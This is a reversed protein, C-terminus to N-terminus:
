FVMFFIVFIQHKLYNRVLDTLESGLRKALTKFHDSSKNFLDESWTEEITMKLLFFSGNDPVAELTEGSKFVETSPEDNINELSYNEPASTESDGTSSEVEELNKLTSCKCVQLSFAVFIVTVILEVKGMKHRFEVIILQFSFSLEYSTQCLDIETKIFTVKKM